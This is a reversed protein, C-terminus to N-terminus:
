LFMWISCDIYLFDILSFFLYPSSWNFMLFWCPSSCDFMFFDISVHDILCVFCDVYIFFWDFLFILLWLSSDFQVLDFMFWSFFSWSLIFCDFLFSWYVFLSLEFFFWLFHFIVFYLRSSNWLFSCFKSYLINVRSIFLSINIFM